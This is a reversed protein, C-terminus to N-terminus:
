NNSPHYNSWGQRKKFTRHVAFHKAKNLSRVRIFFGKRDTGKIIEYNM